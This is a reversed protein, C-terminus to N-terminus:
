IINFHFIPFHNLMAILTTEGAMPSESGGDFPFLDGEPMPEFLIINVWINDRYITDKFILLNMSSTLIKLKLWIPVRGSVFPSLIVILISELFGNTRTGFSSEESESESEDASESM